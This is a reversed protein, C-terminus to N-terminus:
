ETASYVRRRLSKSQPFAKEVDMSHLEWGNSIVMTITMMIIERSVTPAFTSIVLKEPDQNGMVVLRAKIARSRNILFKWTEVFRTQIITAGSPVEDRKIEKFVKYQQWGEIETQRAQLILDKNMQREEKTVTISNAADQSESYNIIGKVNKAIPNGFLETQKVLRGSRTTGSRNSRYTPSPDDNSRVEVNGSYAGYSEDAYSGNVLDDAESKLSDDSSYDTVAESHQESNSNILKSSHNGVSVGSSQHDSSQQRSSAVVVDRIEIVEDEDEQQDNMTGAVDTQGVKRRHKPPCPIPVFSVWTRGRLSRVFTSCGMDTLKQDFLILETKSLDHSNFSYDYSNREIDGEQAMKDLLLCDSLQFDACSLDICVLM